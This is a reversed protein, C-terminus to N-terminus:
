LVSTNTMQPDKVHTRFGLLGGPPLPTHTHAQAYACWISFHIEAQSVCVPAGMTWFPHLVTQENVFTRSSFQNCSGLCEGELFCLFPLLSSALLPTSSLAYHSTLGRPIKGEGRAKEM